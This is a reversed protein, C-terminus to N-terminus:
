RRVSTEKRSQLLQTPAPSVLHSWSNTLTLLLRPSQTRQYFNSSQWTEKEPSQKWSGQLVNSTPRETPQKLPFLRLGPPNCGVGWAGATLLPIKVCQVHMCMNRHNFVESFAQSKVMYWCWTNGMRTKRIQCEASTNWHLGTSMQSNERCSPEQIWFEILGKPFGYVGKGVECRVLAFWAQSPLPWPTQSLQGCSHLQHPRVTWCCLCVGLTHGCAGPDELTHPHCMLMGVPLASARGRFRARM